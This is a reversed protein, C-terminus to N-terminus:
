SKAAARPTLSSIASSLKNAFQKLMDESTGGQITMHIDGVNVSNDNAINNSNYVNNIASTVAEQVYSNDLGIKDESPTDNLFSSVLRMLGTTDLSTLADTVKKISSILGSDKSTSESKSKDTTEPLFQQKFSEKVEDLSIEGRLLKMYYDGSTSNLAKDIIESDSSKIQRTGNIYYDLLGIVNDYFLLAEDKQETLIDIQEQLENKRIEELANAVEEEASLIAEQDAMYEFTGDHFVLQNKQKRADELKQRAKILNLRLEEAQKVKEEEDKVDQLKKIEADYYQTALEKQQEWYLKEDGARNKWAEELWEYQTNQGLIDSNENWLAQVKDFYEKATIFGKEYMRGLLELEYEAVSKLNEEYKTVDVGEYLEKNLAKWAAVYQREAELSKDNAKQLADLRKDYYKDIDEYGSVFSMDLLHDGNRDVYKDRIARIGSMYDEYSTLGREFQMQLIDAEYKAQDALNKEYTDLNYFVSGSSGYTEYNIRRFEDLYAQRSAISNEDYDNLKGWKDLYGDLLDTLGKIYDEIEQLNEEYKEIDTNKYTEENLQRWKAILEKESEITGTNARKIKDLKKSYDSDTSDTGSSDSNFPNYDGLLSAFYSTAEDFEKLAGENFAKAEASFPDFDNAKLLEERAKKYTAINALDISYASKFEEVFATNDEIWESWEDEDDLKEHNYRNFNDLDTQYAQAFLEVLRQANSRTSDLVWKRAADQIRNNKPFAEAMANAIDSFEKKWQDTNAWSDLLSNATNLSGLMSNLTQTYKLTDNYKELEEENEKLAADLMELVLTWASAQNKAEEYQESTVGVDQWYGRDDVKRSEYLDIVEQYNEIYKQVSDKTNKIVADNAKLLDIASITWGDATQEFLSNIEPFAESCVDMLKRVEDSTLSSGEKIKDYASKITSQNSFASDISENLEKLEGASGLLIKNDPNRMWDQIKKSAGELGNDFLDPIKTAAILEDDTLGSVFQAIIQKQGETLAQGSEKLYNIYKDIEHKSNEFREEFQKYNKDSLLVDSMADKIDEETGEFYEKYNDEAFKYMDERYKVYEDYSTPIDNIAEYMYQIGQWANTNSKTLSQYYTDYVKQLETQRAILKSYADTNKFGSQLMDQILKNLTELESKAHEEPTKGESVVIYHFPSALGDGAHSVQSLKNNNKQNWNILWKNLENDFAGVDFASSTHLNAHFIYDKLSDYQDSTFQQLSPVKSLLNEALSVKVAKEYSGYKEILNDLYEGELKLKSNLNDTTESLEEKSKTGEKVGKSVDLYTKYLDQLASIEEKASKAAEEHAQKAEEALKWPLTLLQVILNAIVGALMGVVANLASTAVTLGITKVKAAVLSAGYRVMSAQGAGVNNLYNGLNTNTKGIANALAIQGESLQGTNNGLKNYTAIINSVNSLGKTDKFMVEYVGQLSAQAYKGERALDSFSNALSSGGLKQADAIIADLQQRTDGSVTGLNKFKTVLLNLKDSTDGPLLNQYYRSKIGGNFVGGFFTELDERHFIGINKLASLSGAITAILAPFGSGVKFIENLLGVTGTLFDTGLKILDSQIITTSLDEYAVTLKNIHGEISNLYKDNEELASGASNISTQLSQEAVDFNEIISAVVNANRKGGLKELINAQTVDSLKEWVESIEKLIQYTSKYTKDDLMIDVGSLSEIEARLKSVSEAMGETEIGAEEAETKSARLFM